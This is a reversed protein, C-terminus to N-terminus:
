QKIAEKGLVYYSNLTEIIHEGHHEAVILSTNISEGDFWREDDYVRGWYIKGGAQLEQVHWNELRGAARKNKLAAEVKFGSDM